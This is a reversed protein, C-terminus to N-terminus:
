RPRPRCEEALKALLTRDADPFITALNTATVKSFAGVHERILKGAHFVDKHLKKVLVEAELYSQLGVKIMVGSFAPAVHHQFAVAFGEELYNANGVVPNLMHVVEHASEYVATPWYGSANQSLRTWVSKKDASWQIYPGREHYEAKGIKIAKDRPGFLDEAVSLLAEQMLAVRVPEDKPKLYEIFEIM